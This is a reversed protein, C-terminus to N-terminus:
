YPSYGAGKGPNKEGAFRVEIPRPGGPLTIRRDLNDIAMKASGYHAFRVFASGKSKGQGDRMLHVEVLRGFDFFLEAVQQESWGYPLAGCFLKYGQGNDAPPPVPPPGRAQAKYGQGFMPQSKSPPWGYGALPPAMAKKSFKGGDSDAKRVELPRPQGDVCLSGHLNEVAALAAQSESLKVFASGTSKGQKDKIIYIETIDGFPAFLSQVVGENSDKPLAGVFLKTEGTGWTLSGQSDQDPDPLDSYDVNIQLREIEGSAFQVKLPGEAGPMVKQGHLSRIAADCHHVDAYRVFASKKKDKNLIVLELIKVFPEFEQKLENEHCEQPFRSVFLKGPVQIGKGTGKVM